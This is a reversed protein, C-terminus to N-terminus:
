VAHAQVEANYEGRMVAHAQRAQDLLVDWTPLENDWEVLTPVPGVTKLMWDYLTWCEDSVPQSHDDVILSDAAAPTYGALHIEGVSQLPIQKIWAQAHEVPDQDSFNHANVLLNNLDVLLGCNTREVLGSLFETESMERHDLEVYASLNEVLIRRGLLQQVRDVNDSLMQLSQKSFEIPLLDGSHIPNGKFHSWAFCAHDSISVPKIREILRQLKKLYDTNIGQASGLGMSTSHLSIPYLKAVDTLIEQVVGGDSFFNEAHIEVFDISSTGLLAERYHQHRLGVGVFSLNSEDVTQAAHECSM